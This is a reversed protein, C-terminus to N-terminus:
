FGYLIAPNTVLVNERTREDPIWDALLDVLTSTHAPAGKAFVHPWDSGWVIRDPRARILEHVVPQVTPYPFNDGCLRYPGSLKAWHGRDLLRLLAECAQHTTGEIAPFMGMHDIVAPCPLNLIRSELEVLQNGRLLFEIHWGLDTVRGAMFELDEIPLSGPHALAFRVGRAGQQHLKALRGQEIHRNVVVVARFPLGVERAGDLQASNDTGYISPQVYVAREIGLADFLRAADAPRFAPPAYDGDDAAPYRETAGFLHVHCDVSGPPLAVQARKPM